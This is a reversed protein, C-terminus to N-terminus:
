ELRLKQGIKDLADRFIGLHPSSHQVAKKHATELAEKAQELQGNAELARGLQLWVMEAEPEYELSLKLLEIVDGARGQDRSSRVATGIAFRSLGTDYGYTKSLAAAYSRVAGVGRGIIEDPIANWNSFVFKLGNYVVRNAISGHDEDLFARYEWKAGKLDTRKLVAVFKELLPILLPENEVGMYLFRDPYTNKALYSELNDMILTSGGEYDIAPTAALYANFVNPRTLFMYVCFGGGFSGAYFIRFPHTRFRSDLAPILEDKFFAIFRDAGGSDPHGEIKEPIFDGSSYNRVSAVILGPTSNKRALDAAIGSMHLFHSQCTVLLPYRDTKAEYGEPLCVDIIMDKNLHQSPVIVTEGIVIKNGSQQKKQCSIVALCGFFIILVPLRHPNKTM